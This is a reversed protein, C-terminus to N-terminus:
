WVAGQGFNSRSVYQCFSCDESACLPPDRTMYISTAQSNTIEDLEHSMETVDDHVKATAELYTPLCQPRSLFTIYQVHVAGEGGKRLDGLSDKDCVDSVSYLLPM